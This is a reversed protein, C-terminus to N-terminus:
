EEAEELVAEYLASSVRFAAQAVLDELLPRVEAILGRQKAILLVGLVGTIRLGLSEALSRGAFVDILLRTAKLELDLAIAGAEGPDVVTM